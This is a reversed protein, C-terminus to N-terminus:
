KDSKAADALAILASATKDNAIGPLWHESIGSVYFSRDPYLDKVKANLDDIDTAIFRGGIYNTKNAPQYPFYTEIMVEWYYYTKM